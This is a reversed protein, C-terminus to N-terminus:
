HLFTYKSKKSNNQTQIFGKSNIQYGLEPAIRNLWICLSAILILYMHLKMMESAIFQESSIGKVLLDKEVM